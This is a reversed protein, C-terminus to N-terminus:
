PNNDVSLNLNELKMIKNEEQKNINNLKLSKEVYILLHVSYLTPMRTITWPQCTFILLQSKTNPNPGLKM